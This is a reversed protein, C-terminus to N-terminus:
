AANTSPRSYHTKLLWSQFASFYLGMSTAQDESLKSTKLGNESCIPTIFDAAARGTIAVSQTVNTESFVLEKSKNERPAEEKLMLPITSIGAEGDIDQRYVVFRLDYNGGAETTALQLTPMVMFPYGAGAGFLKETEQFKERFRVLFKEASKELDIKKTVTGSVVEVGDESEVGDQGLEFGIIGKGQGTGNPKFLPLLGLKLFDSVAAKVGAEGDEKKVGRFYGARFIARQEPGMDAVHTPEAKEAEYHFINDLGALDLTFEREKAISELKKFDESQHFEYRRTAAAFKDAGEEVSVNMLHCKTTDIIKDETNQLNIVARDNVLGHIPRGFLTPRGDEIRCCAAVDRSYGLLSLPQGDYQAMAECAENYAVDKKERLTGGDIAGSEFEQQAADIARYYPTTFKDLSRAFLIGLASACIDAIPAKEWIMKSNAASPYSGDENRTAAERGSNAVLVFPTEGEYMGGAECQKKIDLAANQYSMLVTRLQDEPMTAMGGFGTGNIEPCFYFLRDTGDENKITTTGGQDNPVTLKCAMVDPPCTIFDAAWAGEVPVRSLKGMKAALMPDQKKGTALLSEMGKFLAQIESLSALSIDLSPETQTSTDKVQVQGRALNQAALAMKKDDPLARTEENEDLLALQAAFAQQYQAVLRSSRATVTQDSRSSANSPSTSSPRLGHQPTPVTDEPALHPSLPRHASPNVAATSSCNGM